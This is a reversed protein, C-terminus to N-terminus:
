GLRRAGEELDTGAVAREALQRDSVAPVVGRDFGARDQHLDQLFFPRLTM